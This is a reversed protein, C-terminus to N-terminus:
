ACATNECTIFNLDFFKFGFGRGSALVCSGAIQVSLKGGKLPLMLSGARNVNAGGSLFRISRRLARRVDLTYSLTKNSMEVEFLVNLRRHLGFLGGVFFAQDFGYGILKHVDDIM